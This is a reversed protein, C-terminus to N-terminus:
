HVTTRKLDDTILFVVSMGPISAVALVAAEPDDTRCQGEDYLETIPMQSGDALDAFKMDATIAVVEPIDM